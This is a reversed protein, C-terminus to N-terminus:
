GAHERLDEFAVKAQKVRGLLKLGNSGRRTSAVHQYLPQRM